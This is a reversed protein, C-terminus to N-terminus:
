RRRYIAREGGILKPRTRAAVVRAGGIQEQNLVLPMAVPKLHMGIMTLGIDIGMDAKIAEVVVPEKFMEYAAAAFTGGARSIPVVNVEELGGALMLEKEVIVSRNLHECCQVALNLGPPIHDYVAQLIERALVPDGTTDERKGEVRSISCSLLLIKDKSENITELLQNIVDSTEQYLSM